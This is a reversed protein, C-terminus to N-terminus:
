WNKWSAPRRCLALWRTATRRRGRHVTVVKMAGCRHVGAIKGMRERAPMDPRGARSRAPQPQSWPAPRCWGPVKRARAGDSDEVGDRFGKSKLLEVERAVEEGGNVLKLLPEKSLLEHFGPSSLIPRCAALHEYFRTASGSYTPEHKRYPMFAADFSRAYRCLEGYPKSGLFRVRGGRGLLDRRASAQAQDPINMGTPGVFAWSVGQTKDAAERILLWDMNAALNGIVGIIPRPLDAM